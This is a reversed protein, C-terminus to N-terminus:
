IKKIWSIAKPLNNVILATYPLEEAGFGAYFRAMSEGQGGGFDFYKVKKEAYFEIAHKMLLHMSGKDRDFNTGKLYVAHSGNSIFHAIALLEDNDSYVTFSNIRKASIASELLQNFIEIQKPKINLKNKLFMNLYRSSLTLIEKPSILIIKCKLKEAKAANRKSNSNLKFEGDRIIFTRKLKGKKVFDNNTYNLEINAYKYNKSIYEFFMLAVEPNVFGFIGLQPTFPPQVLYTVGFKRAHTLPMVAEYDKWVLADWGKSTANLYFAQAFVWPSQSNLITKDWKKFDIDKHKIHKLM